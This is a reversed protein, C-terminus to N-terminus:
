DGGDYLMLAFKEPVSETCGIACAYFYVVSMAGYTEAKIKNALREDYAIRKYTVATAGDLATSCALHVFSADFRCYRHKPTTEATRFAPFHNVPPRDKDDPWWVSFIV